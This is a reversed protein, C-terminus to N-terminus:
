EPLRWRGEVFYAEDEGPWPPITVAVACLPEPGDSRFQFHTGVPITISVGPEAETVEEDDALRRWMRGHGSMFLWIEEVTRHAVAKSVRHPGLSFLALSARRTACLIRVESGDPAIVDPERSVHRTAFAM